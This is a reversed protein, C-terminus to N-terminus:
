RCRRQRSHDNKPDAGQRVGAAATMTRRLAAIRKLGSAHDKKYKQAAALNEKAVALDSRLRILAAEKYAKGTVKPPPKLLFCLRERSRKVVNLLHQKIALQDKSDGPLASVKLLLTDLVIACSTARTNQAIVSALKSDYDAKAKRNAVLTPWATTVSIELEIAKIKAGCEEVSPLNPNHPPLFIEQYAADLLNELTPLEDLGTAVTLLGDVTLM